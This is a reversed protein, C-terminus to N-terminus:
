LRSPLRDLIVTVAEDIKEEMWDQNDIVGDLSGEAWGRWVLTKARADVMDILLTGADYVYPRADSRPDQNYQDAGNLDIRQSISAHYHVILDATETPTKEFGRAALAEDVDKRVRDQFFPNSDLRPDGTTVPDEAWAYTRFGKFDATREAFSKVRLSACATVSLVAVTL